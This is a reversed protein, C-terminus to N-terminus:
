LEAKGGKKPKKGRGKGKRGKAKCEFLSRAFDHLKNTPLFGYQNLWLALQDVTDGAEVMKVDAPLTAM